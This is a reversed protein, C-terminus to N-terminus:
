SENFTTFGDKKTLTFSNRIWDGLSNHSIVLVTGCKKAKAELISMLRELGADDLADDIEDAIYLSIPKNARSAVLDQLALSCSLRVKRKEGGSLSKFNKGGTKSFVSISFKERLDGNKNRSITHWEASINGDTLISLYENTKENLFPTVVDLVHSRVGSSSFVTLSKKVVDIQKLKSQLRADLDVIIRKVEFINKTVSAEIDAYPHTEKKLKSKKEQISKISDRLQQLRLDKSSVGLQESIKRVTETYEAQLFDEIAVEESLEAACERLEGAELDLDSYERSLKDLQASIKLLQKKKSAIANHLHESDLESGCESCYKSDDSKAKEYEQKKSLCESRVSSIQGEIKSLAVQKKQLEQNVKQLEVKKQRVYGIKQKIQEALADLDVSSEVPRQEEEQNELDYIARSIKEIEKENRLIELENDTKWKSINEFVKQLTLKLTELETEKSAKSQLLIGESRELDFRRQNLRDYARKFRKLDAAEEVIAKLNADSMSPLDPLNEQGSYVAANFVELSCGIIKVIEKQTLAVTGKTISSGNLALHLGNQNKYHKRYRDIRFLCGQDDLISMKVYCNKGAVKNVVDDASQGRATSGFLCWSIADAFSSKGSGNSLQSSDDLNEGQVLVLGRDKLSVSLSGISMFNQVELSVIKM